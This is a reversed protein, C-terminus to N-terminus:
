KTHCTLCLASRANTMRLFSVQIASQSDANHPDHCSACEVFPEGAANLDTRTYLIMDEKERATSSGASSNVWWIPNGNVEDYRAPAFGADGTPTQDTNVTGGGVLGGGGYQISVPHDNSLDAGLVPVPTYTGGTTGNKQDLFAGMNLGGYIAQPNMGSGPMNLVADVAAVGDHCSLCALSVSGIPANTGDITTSTAYRTFTTTTLEKNWLPAAASTNSGHPTHCFVCVEDTGGAIAGGLDHKSDLINQANAVSGLLMLAAAGAIAQTARKYLM